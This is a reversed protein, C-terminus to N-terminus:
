DCEEIEVNGGEIFVTPGMITQNFNPGGQQLNIKIGEPWSPPNDVGPLLCYITFIADIDPEVLNIRMKARGSHLIPPFNPDPSSGSDLFNLLKVAEWTGSGIVDGNADKHIWSGGGCVSKPNVTLLGQGNICFEEGNSATACDFDRGFLPQAVHYSFEAFENNRSDAGESNDTIQEVEASTGTIQEVESKQCSFLTLMLGLVMTMLFSNMKTKM